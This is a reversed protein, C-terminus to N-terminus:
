TSWKMLVKVMITEENWQWKMIPIERMEAMPWQDDDNNITM